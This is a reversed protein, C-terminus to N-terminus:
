EFCRNRVTAGGSLNQVDFGNQRLIRAAIHGRVGVACSVVTPKSRDLESLRERLEDVPIHMAGSAERLPTKEIEGAGRVDVVQVEGLSDDSDRFSEIEDLANCAAFAAMHVPDKASGFPPAYALDLGALDRVTGGFHMATAIVDIRKDIGEGGVCQAGLVKGTAPEFALKLTMVEAGPFYGAHHKAVITVSSADKGFRKASARTLGTMGVSVDFVRVVSTGWVPTAAASQGTVAHEGALRGSRNAPGALPVRMPTGTPGYVPESADGVAYIDSDSTRSFEDITIGGTSGIELGAEKALESNPRVGIGLIVLDTSLETGNSLRVSTARDGDLQISELGVGLHVGVNNRRLEDEIPRAMEHDLLPLVQERLEILDVDMERRRLQEVMELGIYGAGVVVARRVSGSDVRAKIRDMDVLNRLTLVNSADVGPLAPVIPSAGPALILKDYPQEYTKDKESTAGHRVVTVCRKERDISVVEERTRVDLQFRRRLFDASAVVLADRNKIEEGIHYPLGCNAFSVDEDKEFLIIEAQENMRRARTAASAGGAVGGVIVLRVPANHEVSM